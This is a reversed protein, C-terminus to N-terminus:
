SLVLSVSISRALPISIHETSRPGRHTGSSDIISITVSLFNASLGTSIYLLFLLTCRHFPRRTHWQFRYDIAVIKMRSKAM